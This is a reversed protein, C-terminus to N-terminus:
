VSCLRLWGRLIAPGPKRRSRAKKFPAFLTKLGMMVQASIARPLTDVSGFSPSAPQGILFIPRFVLGPFEAFLLRLAVALPTLLTWDFHINGAIWAALAICFAFRLFFRAAMTRTTVYAECGLRLRGMLFVTAGLTVLCHPANQNAFFSPQLSESHAFLFVGIPWRRGIWLTKGLSASLFDRNNM